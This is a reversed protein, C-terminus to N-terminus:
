LMLQEGEDEPRVTAGMAPLTKTRFRHPNALKNEDFPEINEIFQNKKLTFVSVGISNKTTKENVMASSFLLKRRVNSTIVFEKDENIYFIKILKQKDCYANALKKRNTKTEYSNVPIKAVKGNDYFFMFYGKYDSTDLMFILKEDSDFSLKAPIYDGLISAKQEDFESVKSKYVQYKDTFFLLHTNNSVEKEFIIEDGEKLKQDNSMRLSQPTIKKFYGEKSLFINVNYDPIEEIEDDEEIDDSYIFLTKRPESYKAIIEKLENIIINNVKHPAKLVDEMEAIDKLLDEIEKTRKLIYEKNLHRLKIEAVYEAQIEDIGFGIMLNPIVETEEATERVIKIAKDIDLLIKELGNLLHLKEKKKKLDFFIRRKVCEVRFAIWETIIERVGMVKPYGSILINFNCSYADQLPTMRFLKKMLKEADVGRKLDLTLKLGSLDTEDRLDSIERIKNSKILEVIKDIIAEVTTTPPIQTVEICNEEKVYNYKSRIKFSARGTNIAKILE